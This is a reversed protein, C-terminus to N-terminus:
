SITLAVRRYLSLIHTERESNKGEMMRKEEEVEEKIIKFISRKGMKKRKM